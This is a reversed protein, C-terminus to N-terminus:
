SKWMKCRFVIWFLRERYELERLYSTDPCYEVINHKWRVTKKKKKMFKKNKCNFSGDQNRTFVIVLNNM